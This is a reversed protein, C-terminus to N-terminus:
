STAEAAADLRVATRLDVVPPADVPPADVPSADVPSTAPLAIRARVRFGGGPRPGVELEGDHLAVRERMGVLGLGRRGAGPRGAALDVVDPDPVSRGDDVVEIEVAPRPGTVYRLRVDVRAAGAHRVTNTLAEQAIRYLSVSVSSAVPVPAGVVTYEAQLGISATRGVLDGLQELGPAPPTADVSGAGGEGDPAAGRLVGLLRRMEEVASRAAGEIGRLAARAAPPDADFVVRAAGAQVGMVSVHHAVVDHLERAIRVREDLVARRANEDRERALEANRQELLSRQGASRWSVEGFAWAASFYVINVAGSIIVYATEASLSGGSVGEQVLSRDWSYTSLGFVLWAFMAAVVVARAWRSLLRDRGWAGSTFLALFLAIQSVFSELTGRVQLGIFAGGVLVLVTQPYRRRVALPLTVALLWAVEEAASPRIAVHIGAARSVLVSAIGGAAILVGLALDARAASPPPVRVWGPPGAEAAIAARVARVRNMGGEGDGPGPYARRRRRTRGEVRAAEVTPHDAAVHLAVHGVVAGDREAV